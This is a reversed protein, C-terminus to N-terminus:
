KSKNSIKNDLRISAHLIETKIESLEIPHKSM